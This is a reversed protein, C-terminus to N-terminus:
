TSREQSFALMVIECAIFENWGLGAGLANEQEMLAPFDVDSARNRWPGRRLESQLWILQADSKRNSPLRGTAHPCLRRGNARKRQDDM